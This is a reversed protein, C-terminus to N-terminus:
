KVSMSYPPSERTSALLLPPMLALQLLMLLVAAFIDFVGGVAAALAEVLKIGRRFLETTGGAATSAPTSLPCFLFADRQHSSDM